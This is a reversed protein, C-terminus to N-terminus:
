IWAGKEDWSIKADCRIQTCINGDLLKTTHSDDSQAIVWFFSAQSGYPLNSISSLWPRALVGAWKPRVWGRAKSGPARSDMVASLSGELVGPLVEELGLPSASGNEGCLM